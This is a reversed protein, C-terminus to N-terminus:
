SVLAVIKGTNWTLLGVLGAPAGGPECPPPPPSTSHEPGFGPVAAVQQQHRQPLLPLLCARTRNPAQCLHPVTGSDWCWVLLATYPPVPGLPHGRNGLGGESSYGHRTRRAPPAVWPRGGYSSSSRVMKHFITASNLLLFCPPMSFLNNRIKLCSQGKGKLARQGNLSSCAEEEKQTMEPSEDTLYNFGLLASPSFFGTRTLFAM